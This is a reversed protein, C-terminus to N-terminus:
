KTQNELIAAFNIKKGTSSCPRFIKKWLILIESGSISKLLDRKPTQSTDNEIIEELILFFDM